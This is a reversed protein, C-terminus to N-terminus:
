STSNVGEGAICSQVVYEGKIPYYLGTWMVVLVDGVRCNCNWNALLLKTLVLDQLLWPVTAVGRIGDRECRRTASAFWRDLKMGQGSLRSVHLKGINPPM